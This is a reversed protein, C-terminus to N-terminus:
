CTKDIEKLTQGPLIGHDTMKKRIKSVALRWPALDVKLYAAKYRSMNLLENKKETHYLNLSFINGVSDCAKELAHQIDPSFSDYKTETIFVGM